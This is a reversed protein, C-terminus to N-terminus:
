RHRILETALTITREDINRSQQLAVEGLKLFEARKEEIFVQEREARLAHLKQQAETLAFDINEIKVQLSVQEENAKELKQQAKADGSSLANFANAQRVSKIKELAEATREKDTQLEKINERVAASENDIQQTTRM